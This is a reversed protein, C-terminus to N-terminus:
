LAGRSVGAAACCCARGAPAASVCASLLSVRGRAVRGGVARAAAQPRWAAARCAGACRLRRRTVVCALLRPRVAQAPAASAPMLAWRRERTGNAASRHACAAGAPAMPAPLRLAACAARAPHQLPPSLCPRARVRQASLGDAGPNEQAGRARRGQPGDQQRRRRRRLPVSHRHAGAALLFLVRRLEDCWAPRRPPGAGRAWRVAAAASLAASIAGARVRAAARRGAGCAAEASRLGRRVLTLEPHWFRMLLVYRDQTHLCLTLAALVLM